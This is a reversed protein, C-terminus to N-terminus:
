RTRRRAPAALRARVLPALEEVGSHIAEPALAAFSLLLAPPGEGDLWCSAGSAYAIGRAAAEAALGAVDVGAPLEVWVCTGGAPERV